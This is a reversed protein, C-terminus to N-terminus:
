NGWYLQAMLGAGFITYNTLPPTGTGGQASSPEEFWVVGDLRLAKGEYGLGLTPMLGQITQGNNEYYLGEWYGISADFPESASGWILGARLACESALNLEGGLSVQVNNFQASLGDLNSKYSYIDGQLGIVFDGERELGVGVQVWDTTETIPAPTPDDTSELNISSLGFLAGQTLRLSRAGDQDSLSFKVKYLAALDIGQNNPELFLNPTQNNLPLVANQRFDVVVGGQFVGPKELFVGPQISFAPMSFLYGSRFPYTSGSTQAPLAEFSFSGGLLLNAGGKGEELGLRLLAGTNSQLQHLVQPVTSLPQPFTAGWQSFQLETGFSLAGWQGAGRALAEGNQFNIPLPNISYKYTEDNVGGALQFGWHDPSVYLLGQYGLDAIDNLPSLSASISPFGYPTHSALGLQSWQAQNGQTTTSYWPVTFEVRTQPGLLALGAPNGIAYPTIQSEDDWVALSLGGMSDTRIESALGTHATSVAWLILFLLLTKKM